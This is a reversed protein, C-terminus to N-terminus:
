ASATDDIRAAVKERLREARPDTFGELAELAEFWHGQAADPDGNRSVVGALRDLSVALNWRSQNRRYGSAAQRYFQAAEELRNLSEYVEGVGEFSESERVHDGISRHLSAAEHFNTLAEEPQRLLAHIRGLELLAFGERVTHDLDQAIELARRTLALSRDAQDMERLAASLSTLCAFESMRNGTERHIELAQEALLVADERLGLDLLCRVLNGQAIGEWLRDGLDRAAANSRELHDRAEDLRHGRLHALGLANLSMVVGPEDVLERRLELARTHHEIGEVPRNSHLHAGVLTDLSRRARRVPLNALAAAAGVDFDRGPHLGLLRFLRAADQPLVRYSWAFVSRVTDAEEEDGTALANWLGSEDRLDQILDALPMHPRSAAREAAIRLALPLQGCLRALEAVEGPDDQPRHHVTM